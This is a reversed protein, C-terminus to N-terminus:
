RLRLENQVIRAVDAVFEGIIPLNLTALRALSLLFVAGIVTFGVAMGFGRALGAVFNLWIMRRPHRFLEVYDAIGSKVFADTAQELRHLLDRRNKQDNAESM